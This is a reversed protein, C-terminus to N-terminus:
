SITPKISKIHSLTILFINSYPYCIKTSDYGQKSAFLSYLIIKNYKKKINLEMSKLEVVNAHFNDNSALKHNTKM